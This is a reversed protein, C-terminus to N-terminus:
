QRSQRLRALGGGALWYGAQLLLALAIFLPITGWDFGGVQFYFVARYTRDQVPHRATVIGIYTGKEEFAHRITYNGDTQVITPQYFVTAAALDEIVQVDEWRAFRGVGNIDRIIRFDVPMQRLYDHLYEMVFISDTVDPIDECFEENGRTEPQYVTFHATLYDINIVCQDDAFAVGGHASAPTVHLAGPILLLFGCAWM